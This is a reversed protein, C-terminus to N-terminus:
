ISLSHIPDTVFSLYFYHILRKSMSCDKIQKIYKRFKLQQLKRDKVDKKDKVIQNRLDLDSFKSEPEVYSSPTYDHILITVTYVNGDLHADIQFIKRM